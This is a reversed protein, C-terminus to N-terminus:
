LKQENESHQVILLIKKFIGCKGKFTIKTIIYTLKNFSLYQFVSFFSPTMAGYIYWDLHGYQSPAKPRQSSSNCTTIPWGM